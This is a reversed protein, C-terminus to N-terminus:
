RILVNANELVKKTSYGFMKILTTHKNEETSRINHKDILMCNQIDLPKFSSNGKPSKSRVLKLANDWTIEDFPSFAPKNKEMEKIWEDFHNNFVAIQNKYEASDFYNEDLQSNSSKKVLLKINSKTWRSVNKAKSLGKTLYETYLRFKTLPTSLQKANDINLEDFTITETEKQIGFEKIQTPNKAKGNESAYSNINKCFDMIALAGALELFHAKNKQEKGGVAYAEVNTNGNNGIFYLVNIKKQSIITRNYYDIAIKAKEDFSEANIEDKKDLTFYPLYTIGGIPADKIQVHNPLTDNGRLNKLLLPFGAAGTGGFISSIIFVADQPAFTQGFKKFDESNTFQNLVISGMNPNGKFGVDLKSKLNNSSYLLRVFNKDDKFNKYEDSLSDFGIFENFSNNDVGQLSFQFYEPSIVPSNNALENITKIEQQYFDDPEKVQNRIEQYLRLIDKTRDMDGNSNDPDIIIPIVTDFDNQLKVGSALLMTLAKIVRSGTGGIGFVYLKKAM